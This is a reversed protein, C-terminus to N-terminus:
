TIQHVPRGIFKAHYLSGKLNGTVIFFTGPFHLKNMVPIAEKFQTPIGDDYTISIAGKKGFQWKTIEVQCYGQNIFLVSLCFICAKCFLNKTM